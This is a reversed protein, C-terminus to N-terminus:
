GDGPAGLVGGLDLGLARARRKFRDPLGPPTFPPPPPDCSRPGPGALACATANRCTAACTRGLATDTAADSLCRRAGFSFSRAPALRLALAAADVKRVFVSDCNGVFAGCRSGYDLSLLLRALEEPGRQMSTPHARCRTCWYAESSAAGFTSPLAVVSDVAAADAVVDGDDTGLYVAAGAPALARAARLYDALDM